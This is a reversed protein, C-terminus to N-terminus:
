HFSLELRYVTKEPKCGPAIVLEYAADHALSLATADTKANGSPKALKVSTVHAAADM